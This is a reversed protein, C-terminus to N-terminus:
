SVRAPAAGPAGLDFLHQMREVLEASAGYVHVRWPRPWLEFCVIAAVVLVAIITEGSLDWHQGPRVPGDVTRLGSSQILGPSEAKPQCPVVPPARVYKICCFTMIVGSTFVLILASWASVGWRKSVGRHWTLEAQQVM